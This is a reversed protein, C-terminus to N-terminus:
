AARALVHDLAAGLEREPDGAGGMARWAVVRDPRVLLAGIVAAPVIGEALRRHRRAAGAMLVAVCEAALPTLAPLIGTARPAVLGVAGAVEALGLLKIRWRPWTAAWHM